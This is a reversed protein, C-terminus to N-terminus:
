QSRESPSQRSIKQTVGEQLLDMILEDYNCAKRNMCLKPYILVVSGDYKQRRASITTPGTTPSLTVMLSGPSVIARDKGGPLAAAGASSSKAVSLPASASAAAIGTILTSVVTFPVTVSTPDFM